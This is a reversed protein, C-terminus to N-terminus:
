VAWAPGWEGGLHSYEPPLLAGHGSRGGPRHGCDPWSAGKCADKKAHMRRQM